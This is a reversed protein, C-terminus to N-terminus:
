RWRGIISTYHFERGHQTAARVAKVTTRARVRGYAAGTGRTLRASRRDRRGDRSDRAPDDDVAAEAQRRVDDPEVAIGLAHRQRFALLAAGLIRRSPHRAIRQLVHEDVDLVAQRRPHIGDRRLRDHEILLLAAVDRAHEADLDALLEVIRLLSGSSCLTRASAGILWGNSMPVGTCPM